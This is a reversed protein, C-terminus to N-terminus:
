IPELKLKPKYNPSSFKTVKKGLLNSLKIHKKVNLWKFTM